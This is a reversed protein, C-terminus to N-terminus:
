FAFKLAVQIVRYDGISLGSTGSIDGTIQGFSGANLAASSANAGAAAGGPVSPNLHNPLNFAEARLQLTTKEHIPFTRSVAMDLQFIGPGAINGIGLNGLSGVAPSSFAARNAWQLCPAPSCATHDTAYPSV